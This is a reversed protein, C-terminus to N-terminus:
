IQDVFLPPVTLSLPVLVSCTLIHQEFDTIYLKASKASAPLTANFSATRFSTALFTNAPRNGLSDKFLYLTTTAAWTPLGIPFPTSYFQFFAGRLRDLGLQSSRVSVTLINTANSLLFSYPQTVDQHIERGLLDACNEPFLVTQNCYPGWWGTNCECVHYRVKNVCHGRPGCPDVAPCTPVLTQCTSGTWGTFSCNCSYTPVGSVCKGGHLCPNIAPCDPTPTQCKTGQYGTGSCDCYYYPAAGGFDNYCTGHVCPNSPTTCFNIPTSCTAGMYNTGTCNCSYTPYGPVCKGGHLCPNTNPCNNTVTQCTSGHYGTGTCNCLLVNNVEYCKGHLCPNSSACTNVLTQCTTGSYGTGFCNCTANTASTAQCTSGHLCRPNYPSGVDCPSPQVCQSKDPCTNGIIQTGNSITVTGQLVAVRGFVISNKGITAGTGAIVTGTFNTSAALTFHGGVIWFVHCSSTCNTKKVHAGANVTLDGEIQFVFLGGANLTQTGTITVSSTQSWCYIGQKLSGAALNFVGLKDHDCTKFLYESYVIQASTLVNEARQSIPGADVRGIVDTMAINILYDNAHNGPNLTENHGVPQNASPRIRGNTIQGVPYSAVDGKVQVHAYKTPFIVGGSAALAVSLLQNVFVGKDNICPCNGVKECFSGTYGTGTCNCTYFGCGSICHGGNQCCGTTCYNIPTQCQNGTYCHSNSCNCLLTNHNCVGSHLCPTASCNFAEAQRPAQALFLIAVVLVVSASTTM